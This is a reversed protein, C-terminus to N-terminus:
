TSTMSLKWDSYVKVESSCVMLLIGCKTAIAGPQHPHPSPPPLTAFHNYLKLGPVYDGRKYYAPSKTSRWEATGMCDEEGAAPEGFVQSFKWDLPPPPPGAAVSVEGGEGGNM